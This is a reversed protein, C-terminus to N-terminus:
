QTEALEVEKAALESERRERPRVYLYEVAGGITLNIPIALILGPLGFIKAWLVVSFLTVAPHMKVAGRMILPLIVYAEFSQIITFTIVVGVVASSSQSAAFLTAIVAAVTPGITPVLEAIGALLALPLAFKLGAISFGISSATFVVCM